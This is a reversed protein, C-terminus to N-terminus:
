QEPRGIAGDAVVFGADVIKQRLEDSLACNKLKRAEDRQRMLDDLTAVVAARHDAKAKEAEVAELRSVYEAGHDAGEESIVVYERRRKRESKIWRVWLPLAAKVTAPYASSINPARSSIRRDGWALRILWKWDTELILTSGNLRQGRSIVIM